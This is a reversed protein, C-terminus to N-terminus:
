DITAIVWINDGLNKGFRGSSSTGDLRNIEGSSNQGVRTGQGVKGRVEQRLSEVLGVLGTKTISGGRISGFGEVVM